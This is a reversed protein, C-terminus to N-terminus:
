ALWKDQDATVPLGYKVSPIISGRMEIRTGGANTTLTFTKEQANRLRKSSPTFFGLSALNKEVKVFETSPLTESQPQLATSIDGEQDAEKETIGREEEMTKIRGYLDKIMLMM